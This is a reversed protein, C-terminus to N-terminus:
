TGVVVVWIKWYREFGDMKYGCLGSNSVMWMMKSKWQWCRCSLVAGVAGISSRGMWRWREVQRMRLRVLDM